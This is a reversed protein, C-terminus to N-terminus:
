HRKDVKLCYTLYIAAVVEKEILHTLTQSELQFTNHDILHKTIMLLLQKSSAHTILHKLSKISTFSDFTPIDELNVSNIVEKKLQNLDYIKISEIELIQACIELAAIEYEFEDLDQKRAHTRLADSLPQPNFVNVKRKILHQNLHSEADLIIRYFQNSKKRRKKITYVFGDYRLPQPNFVNVKRKILHQNLHSEADLIIRYFQNSKKRRKKITYVFGDYKKFAKLTDYYGMNFNYDLHKRDFDLFNGLEQTPIIATINPRNLYEPHIIKKHNLDIMIIEDAGMEFALSVPLNDYYGGDVYSKGNFEHIPFAPFCSASALLYDHLFGEEMESKTIALPNLSPYEVIMCGFDIDSERLKKEDCSNKILEKFPTIDAGKDHLYQKFFSLIRNSQNILSEFSEDYSIGNKMVQELCMLSNLEMAKEFEDSAILCGILAGISTGTVINPRIKLEHLAKYCGMEYSGKAGGGALCIALKM